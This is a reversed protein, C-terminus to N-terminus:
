RGRGDVELMSNSGSRKGFIICKGRRGVLENILYVSVAVNYMRSTSGGEGPAVCRGGKKNVCM